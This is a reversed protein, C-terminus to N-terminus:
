EIIKPVSFFDEKRKPANSLAEHASLSAKVSDKRFVNKLSDLPHSTPPTNSIDVENLKNIYELIEVLQSGYLEIERRDLRIRSLNAVNRVIDESINKKNAM